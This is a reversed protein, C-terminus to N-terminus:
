DGLSAALDDVVLLVHALARHRDGDVGAAHVGVVLLAVVVQAALIEEAGTSGPMALVSAGRSRLERYISGKVGYDLAVVRCREEGFAPLVTAETLESSTSALDLGVM